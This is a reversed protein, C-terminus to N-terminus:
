VDGLCGGDRDNDIAQDHLTGEIRRKTGTPADKGHFRFRPRCSCAATCVIRFL